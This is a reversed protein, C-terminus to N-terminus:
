GSWSPFLSINSESHRSSGEAGQMAPSFFKIVVQTEIKNFDRADRVHKQAQKRVPRALSKDAGRYYKWRETPSSVSPCTFRSGLM